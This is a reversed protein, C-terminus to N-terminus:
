VAVTLESPILITNLIYDTDEPAIICISRIIWQRNSIEEMLEKNSLCPFELEERLKSIFYLLMATEENIRTLVPHSDIPVGDRVSSAFIRYDIRESMQLMQQIYEVTVALGIKDYRKERIQRIMENM